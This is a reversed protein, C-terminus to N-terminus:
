WEKNKVFFEGLKAAVEEQISSNHSPHRSMIFHVWNKAAEKKIGTRHIEEVRTLPFQGKKNWNTFTTSGIGTITLLDGFTLYEKRFEDILEEKDSKIKDLDNRLYKIARNISERTQIYAVCKIQNM